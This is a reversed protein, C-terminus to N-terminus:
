RRSARLERVGLYLNPVILLLFALMWYQRTFLAGTVFLLALAAGIGLLLIGFRRQQAPDPRPAETTM